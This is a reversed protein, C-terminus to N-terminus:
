QLAKKVNSFHLKVFHQPAKDSKKLSELAEKVHTSGKPIDTGLKKELERWQKFAEHRAIISAAAVEVYKSEAKTTMIDGIKCGPYKDVVHTGPKLEAGVEKHLKNMLETQNYNNYEEPYINRIVFKVYKRIEESMMPIKADDLKKSDMVGIMKLTEREVDDAKVGVVVLGGFTDGKMTEDSGIYVGEQKVFEIKKQEMFGKSLLLKRFQEVSVDNGQILLKGSNFLVAMVSGKYRAQEYKSKTEVIALGEELLFKIDAKKVELFTVM